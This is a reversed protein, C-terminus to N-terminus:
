IQCSQAWSCIVESRQAQTDEDKFILWFVVRYLIGHSNLSIIHTFYRACPLYIQPFSAFKAKLTGM